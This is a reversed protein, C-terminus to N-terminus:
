PELLPLVKSEIFARTMPGGYVIDRIVGHQDIFYTTPLAAVHYERSAEGDIDLAIQFTIGQQEAYAAAIVSSEMQNVAIVSVRRDFYSQQVQELAPMEAKCPPCWSAWFNLVVVKGRYDTLSLLKGDPTHLVLEPVQAGIRTGHSAAIDDIGSAPRSVWAWVLGICIIGIAALRTVPKGQPTPVNM